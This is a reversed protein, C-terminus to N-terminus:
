GELRGILLHQSAVIALKLNLECLAGAFVFLWAAGEENITVWTPLCLTRISVIARFRKMSVTRAAKRM